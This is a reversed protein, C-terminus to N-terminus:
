ITCYLIRNNNNIDKVLVVNKFGKNELLLKTEPGLAQNIEFYLEGNQKLKKLAFDAISRYFLLPDNDNVFLALHPEHDLVINQMQEKESVCIYPPNSVIIDFKLDPDPLQCTSSLIDHQFFEVDVNNMEANQKAVELAEVSIDLAYVKALPINKKLAVPICGSGTGIDLICAHSALHAVDQNKARPEQGKTGPEQNEVRSEEKKTRSIILEVLEETEPRPILVHKNVIFKLGYFDAKGFIYQIPKYQKLDKIAFNFKLLESESITVDFNLFIDARKLNLYEEFCYAIFTELEDKEYNNKLEDRFFRVVDAIKNSPIRM